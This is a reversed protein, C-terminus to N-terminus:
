GASGMRREYDETFRRVKITAHLEALRRDVDSRMISAMIREHADVALREIEPNASFRYEPLKHEAISM